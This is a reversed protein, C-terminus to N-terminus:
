SIARAQCIAISQLPNQLHCVADDFVRFLNRGGHQPGHSRSVVATEPCDHFGEHPVHVGEGLLHLECLGFVIESDIEEIPDALGGVVAV